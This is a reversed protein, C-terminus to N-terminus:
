INSTPVAYIPMIATMRATARRRMGDHRKAGFPTSRANVNLEMWVPSVRRTVHEGSQLIYM